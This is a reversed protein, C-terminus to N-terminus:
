MTQFRREEQLKAGCPSSKQSSLDWKQSCVYLKHIPLPTKKKKQKQSDLGQYLLCELPYCFNQTHKRLTLQHCTRIM